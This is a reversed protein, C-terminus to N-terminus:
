STKFSVERMRSVTDAYLAMAGKPSKKVKINLKRRARAIELKTVGSEIALIHDFVKGLRDIVEPSLIPTNYSRTPRNGLKIRGNNGTNKAYSSINNKKRYNGITFKSVGIDRAIIYDPEKGLRELVYEPLIIEQPKSQPLLCEKIGLVRRRYSVTKRNCGLEAAITSDHVTGLRSIIDSTWNIRGMGPNGGGGVAKNLLKCGQNIFHDIWQCEYFGSEESLCQQLETVIPQLGKTLIGSLWLHKPTNKRRFAERRHSRMRDHISVSTKGVYVVKFTIPCTWSYIFAKRKEM